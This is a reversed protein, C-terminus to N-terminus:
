GKFRILHTSKMAGSTLPLLRCGGSLLGCSLQCLVFYLKNEELKFDANLLHKKWRDARRVKVGKCSLKVLPINKRYSSEKLETHSLTISDRDIEM